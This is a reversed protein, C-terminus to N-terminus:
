QTCLLTASGHPRLNPGAPSNTEVCPPCFSLSGALGLCPTLAGRPCSSGVRSAMFFEKVMPIGTLRPDLAGAEQLVSLYTFRFLISWFRRHCRESLWCVQLLLHGSAASAQLGGPRDLPLPVTVRCPGQACSSGPLPCGAPYVAAGIAEAACPVPGVSPAGRGQPAPKAKARPGAM